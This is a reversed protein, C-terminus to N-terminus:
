ESDDCHKIVHAVVKGRLLGQVQSVCGQMAFLAYSFPEVGDLMLHRPIVRSKLVEIAGDSFVLRVQGVPRPFAAVGLDFSEWSETTGDPLTISSAGIPLTVVTGKGGDVPGCNQGSVETGMTAGNPLHFLPGELAVSFCVRKQSPIWPRGEAWMSWRFLRVEGFGLRLQKPSVKRVHTDMSMRSHDSGGQSVSALWLVGLLILVVAAVAYRKM